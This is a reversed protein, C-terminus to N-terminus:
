IGIGKAAPLTAVSSRLDATRDRFQETAAQAADKTEAAADRGAAWLIEAIKGAHETYAAMSDQLFDAQVRALSGLDRAEVTARGAKAANAFNRTQFGAVESGVAQAKQGFSACLDLLGSLDPSATNFSHTFAM